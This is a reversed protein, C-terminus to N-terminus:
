QSIPPRTCLFIMTLLLFSADCMLVCLHMYNAISVIASSIKIAGLSLFLSHVSLQDHQLKPECGLLYHHLHSMRRVLPTLFVYKYNSTFIDDHLEVQSIIFYNNTLLTPLMGWLSSTIGVIVGFQTKIVSGNFFIFYVSFTFLFLHCVM